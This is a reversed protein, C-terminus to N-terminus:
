INVDNYINAAKRSGDQFNANTWGEPEASAHYTEGTMYFGPGEKLVKRSGYSAVTQKTGTQTNSRLSHSYSGTLGKHAANPTLFVRGRM